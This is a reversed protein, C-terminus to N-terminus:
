GDFIAYKGSDMKEAVHLFIFPHFKCDIFLNMYKSGMDATRVILNGLWTDYDEFAAIPYVYVGNITCGDFVYKNGTMGIM